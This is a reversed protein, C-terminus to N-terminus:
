CLESCGAVDLLFTVDLSDEDTGSVAPEFVERAAEFTPLSTRM